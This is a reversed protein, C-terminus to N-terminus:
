KEIIILHVFSLVGCIASWISWVILDKFINIHTFGVYCAILSMIIIAICGGKINKNRTAISVIGMALILCAVFLGAIGSVNNQKGVANAFSLACSQLGMIVCIVISIIGTVLKAISM